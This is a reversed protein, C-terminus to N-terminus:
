VALRRRRRLTYAATGLGLAVVIGAPLLLWAAGLRSKDTRPAEYFGKATVGGPGYDPVGTVYAREKPGTFIATVNWYNVLWRRDRRVLDVSVAIPGKLSQKTPHLLLDFGVRNRYTFFPRWGKLGKVDGRWPYRYVPSDGRKWDRLTSGARLDPGALQWALTPNQGTVAAPVFRALTQDIGRRMAPTLRVPREDFTVSQGPRLHEAVPKPSGPLLVVGVATLAV